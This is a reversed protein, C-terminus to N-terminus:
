YESEAVTAAVAAEPSSAAQQARMQRDMEARIQAETVNAKHTAIMWKNGEPDRVMGARDGWFMDMVPMLTEAGSALAQKYVEDVDEVLVYLTAPTNGIASASLANQRPEEPSLMLTSDRLRLEAHLVSGGPGEMMGRIKFGLGTAYFDAAKRVDKVCLMPTVSQYQRRNLPDVKTATKRATKGASKASVKVSRKATKPAGRKPSRKPSKLAKKTTKAM